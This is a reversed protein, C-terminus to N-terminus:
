STTKLAQTRLGEARRQGQGRLPPTADLAQLSAQAPLQTYQSGHPSSSRQFHILILFFLSPAPHPSPSQCAPPRPSPTWGALFSGLFIRCAGCAGVGAAAKGTCFSCLGAQGEEPIQFWNCLRVSGLSANGEEGPPVSLSPSFPNPEAKLSLVLYGLHSFAM